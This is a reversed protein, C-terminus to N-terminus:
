AQSESGNAPLEQEFDHLLSAVKELFQQTGAKIIADYAGSRLRKGREAYVQEDLLYSPNMGLAVSVEWWQETTLAQAIFGGGHAIANRADDTQKKLVDALEHCHKKRQNPVGYVKSVYSIVTKIHQIVEDQYTVGTYFGYVFAKGAEVDDMGHTAESSLTRYCAQYNRTIVTLEFCAELLKHWDKSLRKTPQKESRAIMDPPAFLHISEIALRTEMTGVFESDLARLAEKGDAWRHHVFDEITMLKGAPDKEEAM